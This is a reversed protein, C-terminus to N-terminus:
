RRQEGVLPVPELHIDSKGFSLFILSTRCHHVTPLSQVRYAAGYLQDNISRFARPMGFIRMAALERGLAVFARRGLRFVSEVGALELTTVLPKPWASGVRVAAVEPVRACLAPLVAAALRAPSAFPAACAVLM